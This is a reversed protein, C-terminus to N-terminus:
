QRVFRWFASRFDGMLLEAPVRLGVNMLEDGGFVSDCGTVAYKAKAELGQLRIYRFGSNPQALLKYYAVVAEAGDELGAEIEGVPADGGSAEDREH